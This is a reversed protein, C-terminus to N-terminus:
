PTSFAQDFDEPGRDRMAKCIATPSPDSPHNVAVWTRCNDLTAPQATLASGIVACAIIATVFIAAIIGALALPKM